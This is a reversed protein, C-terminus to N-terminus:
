GRSRELIIVVMFLLAYCQQTAESQSGLTETEIVFSSEFFSPQKKIRAIATGDPANVIYSPNLFYGSFLGILGLQGILADLVKIWGNEEQVKGAPQDGIFLDYDAKLLSKGGNRKISATPTGAADTLQFTPSFDLIKNAKLRFLLQAKTQDRYVEVDERLKFMKQKVFLIEAGSADLVTFRNGLTAIKFKMTLPFQM